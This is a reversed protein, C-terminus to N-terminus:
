KSQRVINLIGNKLEFVTDCKEITTLRHAIIIMTIKGYLNEIAEMVYQETSNDLASTAEDMVLLEPKNYLARAIGIRQRQGGSLRIGREGVVTNLGEPLSNVFDELQAQRIVTKLHEEDENRDDYFLINNKITDNTLYIMQPVYGINAFWSKKNKHIDINDVTITGETPNLLGLIVDVITTKGSGTPGIIGTSTGNKIKFSLDKFVYKDTKPYKFSINNVCIDKKNFNIQKNEDYENYKVNENNKLDDYVSNLAPMFFIIGNLSNQMRNMSPMLRFAAMAFVAMQSVLTSATIEKSLLFIVISLIVVVVITEISLRPLQQLLEFNKRATVYGKANEYYKDIFFEEKQLIKIDKIAGLAQQVWNIMGSHNKINKEAYVKLKRKLGKFIGFFVAIFLVALSFMIIKNIFFLITVIFLFVIFETLLSFISTLLNSCELTSQTVIRIMASSNIGLHYAYPQKLYFQILKHSIDKQANYLITYQFYYVVFMYVNKLIYTFILVFAIFILFNNTNSIGFFNYVYLMKPNSTIVNPNIVVNIFPFILTIGVLELLGSILILVFLFCFKMKQKKDYVVSIKKLIDILKKM